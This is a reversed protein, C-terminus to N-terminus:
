GRMRKGKDRHKKWFGKHKKRGKEYLKMKGRKMERKM